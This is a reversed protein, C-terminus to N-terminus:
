VCGLALGTAGRSFALVPNLARWSQSNQTSSTRGRCCVSLQRQCSCCVLFYEGSIENISVPWYVFTSRCTATTRFRILGSTTGTRKYM